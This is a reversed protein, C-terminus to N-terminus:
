NSHSLPLTFWFTSGKGMESEVWIKGGHVEVLRKCVLLGLGLGPKLDRTEALREFPQFLKCQDHESIGKGQDSVGIRINNDVRRASVRIETGGASYKIANDLLNGVVQELKLQDAEAAPLDEEIVLQFERDAALKKKREIIDALVLSIDIADKTFSMRNSQFRSLEVLNQLLHTLSEAGYEAEKLLERVQEQDIGESLAVKIAGLLVTLPTRLEHSVLGIFDDKLEDLKKRETIDDFVGVAGIIEGAKGFLPVASATIIIRNGDPREIAVEVNRVLEGKLLARSAPLEEPPYPSGDSRLLRMVSSHKPMELGVPDQGYLELARKNAYSVRGDPKEVIVIGSPITRLITELRNKSMEAAHRAERTLIQEKKREIAYLLSRRMFRSDVQGKVLYDEAGLQVAQIALVEDDISTMIVVPIDPSLMQLRTLTKLGGSDPLNLDLLVVDVQNGLLFELGEAMRPASHLAFDGPVEKLMERVLRVDGPNDEILLIKM